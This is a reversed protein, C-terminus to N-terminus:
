GKSCLITKVAKVAQQVEMEIDGEGIFRSKAFM